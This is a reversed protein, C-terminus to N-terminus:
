FYFVGAVACTEWRARGWQLQSVVCLWNYADRRTGWGSQSTVVGRGRACEGLKGGVSERDRGRFIHLLQTQKRLKRADCDLLPKVHKSAQKGAKSM